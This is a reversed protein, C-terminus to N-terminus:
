LTVRHADFERYVADNLVLFFPQGAGTATRAAFAVGYDRGQAEIVSGVGINGREYAQQPLTLQIDAVGPLLARLSLRVTNAKGAVQQVEMVEYPGQATKKEETSSESSTSISDSVSGVSDSVSKSISLFTDSSAQAAFAALALTLLLSSRVLTKMAPERHIQISFVSGLM